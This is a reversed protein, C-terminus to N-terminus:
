SSFCNVKFLAFLVKFLAVRERENLFYLSFNLEGVSVLRKAVFCVFSIKGNTM